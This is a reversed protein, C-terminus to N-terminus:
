RFAAGNGTPAAGLPVATAAGRSPSGGEDAGAEAQLALIREVVLDSLRRVRDRAEIRDMVDQAVAGAVRAAVADAIREVLRDLEEPTM